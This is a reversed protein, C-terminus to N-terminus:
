EKEAVWAEAEKINHRIFELTTFSVGSIKSLKYKTINKQQLLENINM